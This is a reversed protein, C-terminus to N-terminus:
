ENGAIGEGQDPTTAPADSSVLAPSPPLSGIVGPKLAELVRGGMSDAALAGIATVVQVVALCIAVWAIFWRTRDRRQEAEDNLQQLSLDFARQGAKSRPHHACRSRPCRV